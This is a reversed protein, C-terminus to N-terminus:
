KGLDRELDSAHTRESGCGSSPMLHTTLPLPPSRSLSLSLLASGGFGVGVLVSAVYLPAGGDTLWLLLMALLVVVNSIGLAVPRPLRYRRVLVDSVSGFLLRGACNATSLLSVLVATESHAARVGTRATLIDAMNNIVMMGSGAGLVMACFLLWFPWSFVAGTLTVDPLSASMDDESTLLPQQNAPSVANTSSSEPFAAHESITAEASPLPADVPKVSSSLEDSMPRGTYCLISTFLVYALVMVAIRAAQPPKLLELLSGSALLLALALVFIYAGALRRRPATASAATRPAQPSPLRILWAGVLCCFAFEIGCFFLYPVIDSSPTTDPSAPPAIPPAPAAAADAADVFSENAGSTSHAFAGVYIASGLSGSLGVFAKVLGLASGRHEPFGPAVTSIAAIDAVMQSQGQLFGIVLLMWFPMQLSSFTLCAWLLLWAPTGLFVALICTGRPGFAKYFLGLHLGLNGGLNGMSGILDIQYENLGFAHKLNPSYLSFAYFMGCVSEVLLAAALTAWRSHRM